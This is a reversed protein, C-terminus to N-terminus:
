RTEEVRAHDMERLVLFLIQFISKLNLYFTCDCLRTKRFMCMNIYDINRISRKERDITQPLTSRCQILGLFFFIYIKTKKYLFQDYKSFSLIFSAIFLLLLYRFFAQM